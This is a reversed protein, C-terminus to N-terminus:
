SRMTSTGYVMIYSELRLRRMAGKELFVSSSEHFIVICKFQDIIYGGSLFNVPFSPVHLVCSLSISSTCEISGVGHIPQSTGDAIQVIKSHTYPIYTKFSDAVGTIHKSAGLDIVWDIPHRYASALTKHRLVEM